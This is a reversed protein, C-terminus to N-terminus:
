RKAPLQKKEVVAGTTVDFVWRIRDVSILTLQNTRRDFEPSGERYQYHSVSPRVKSLDEILDKTSYSELLKDRKYFAVGLDAEEPAQGQPWNGLRILHEADNALLVEYAYWGDVSWQTKDKGAAVFYCTGSGADRDYPKKPDPLMKFYAGGNGTASVHPYPAVESDPTGSGLLPLLALSGLASYLALRM